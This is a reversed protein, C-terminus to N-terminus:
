ITFGDCLFSKASAPQFCVIVDPHVTDLIDEINCLLYKKIFDDNVARGQKVDIARLIERKIKYYVPFRIEKGKYRRLNYVNVKEDFPYFPTGVREDSYITAVYHNRRVMENAFAVNVKALGGSDNVMKAFNALLIRM